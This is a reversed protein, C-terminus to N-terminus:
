LKDAQIKPSQSVGGSSFISDTLRHSNFCLSLVAQSLAQTKSQRFLIFIESQFETESQFESQTESQSHFLGKM